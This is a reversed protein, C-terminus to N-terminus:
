ETGGIPHFGLALRGLLDLTFMVQFYLLSLTQWSFLLPSETWLAAAIVVNGIHCFWLFIWPGYFHLDTPILVLLYFTYAVKLWLPIQPKLRAISNM